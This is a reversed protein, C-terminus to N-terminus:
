YAIYFGYSWNTNCNVTLKGKEISYNLGSGQLHQVKLLKENNYFLIDFVHGASETSGNFELAIVIVGRDFSIPIEIYKNTNFELKKRDVYNKTVLDIDMAINFREIEM